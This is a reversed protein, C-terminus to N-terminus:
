LIVNIILEFISKGKATSTRDISAGATHTKNCYQESYVQLTAFKLPANGDGWGVAIALDNDFNLGPSPLCIPRVAKTFKLPEELQLVVIDNYLAWSGQDRNPQVVGCSVNRVQVNIEDEHSTQLDFDGARIQYRRPVCNANYDRVLKIFFIM